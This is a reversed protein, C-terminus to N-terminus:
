SLEDFLNLGQSIISIIWNFRPFISSLLERNTKAPNARKRNATKMQGILLTISCPLPWPANSEVCFQFGKLIIQKVYFSVQNGLWADDLNGQISLDTKQIDLSNPILLFFFFFVFVVFFYYGKFSM